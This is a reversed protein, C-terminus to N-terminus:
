WKNDILAQAPKWKDKNLQNNRVYQKFKVELKSYDRMITYIKEKNLGTLRVVEWTKLMNTVGSKQVKVYEAFEQKTIEM